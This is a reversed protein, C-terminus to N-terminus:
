GSGSVLYFLVGILVLAIVLLTGIWFIRRGNKQRRVNGLDARGSLMPTASDKDAVGQGTGPVRASKSEAFVPEAAPQESSQPPAPAVASDKKEKPSNDALGPLVEIASRWNPWGDRWLLATAAVRGEAIWSRLMDGDAPGYQGGSPPRIYWTADPDSSLVDIEVEPKAAPADVEAPKEVKATSVKATAQGSSSAAAQIGEEIPLSREASQEPIRFRSSCAPCIGRKGALDEKINLQKACVHCAFRIGMLFGFNFVM